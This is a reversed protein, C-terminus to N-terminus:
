DYKDIIKSFESIPNEALSKCFLGYKSLLISINACSNKTDSMMQSTALEYRAAVTNDLLKAEKTYEIGRNLMGEASVEAKKASDPYGSHEACTAVITYFASCSLHVSAFESWARNDSQSFATTMPFAIVATLVALSTKLIFSFKSKKSM